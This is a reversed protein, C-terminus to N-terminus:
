GKKDKADVSKARQEKIFAKKARNLENAVDPEVHAFPCPDKNCTGKQFAACVIQRSKLQNM